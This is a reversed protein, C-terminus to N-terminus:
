TDISMINNKDSFSSIRQYEDEKEMQLINHIREHSVKTKRLNGPINFLIDVSGSLFGILFSFRLIDGITMEGTIVFLSGLTFLVFFPFLGMISNYTRIVETQKALAIRKSFYKNFYENLQQKFLHKLMYTKIIDIFNYISLVYQSVLVSQEKESKSLYYLNNALKMNILLLIPFAILLSLTMKWSIFVCVILAGIFNIPLFGLSNMFTYNNQITDIDQTCTVLIDGENKNDLEKIACSTLKSSLKCRITHGLENAESNVRANKWITFYVEVLMTIFIIVFCWAVYQFPDHASDIIQGM